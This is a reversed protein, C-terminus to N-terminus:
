KLKYFKYKARKPSYKNLKCILSPGGRKSSLCYSAKVYEEVACKAGRFKANQMKCEANQM